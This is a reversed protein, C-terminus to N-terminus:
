FPTVQPLTYMNTHGSSGKGFTCAPQPQGRLRLCGFTNVSPLLAGDLSEMRRTGRSQANM